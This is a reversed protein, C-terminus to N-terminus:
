LGKIVLVVRPVKVVVFEKTVKLEKIVEQDRIEELDRIVKLVRHDPLVQIQLVQIEQPVKSVLPLRMEKLVATVLLVKQDQQDKKVKFLVVLLDKHHLGMPVPLDPHVQIPVVLIEKLVKTRQQVQIEKLQLDLYEKLDKFDKQVKIVKIV